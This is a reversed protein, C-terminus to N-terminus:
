GSSTAAAITAADASASDTPPTGAAPDAASPPSGPSAAAPCLTPSSAAPTMAPTSAASSASRRTPTRPFAMAAAAATSGVPIVATSPPSWPSTSAAM